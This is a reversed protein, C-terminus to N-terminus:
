GSAPNRSRLWTLKPVSILGRFILLKQIGFTLGMRIAHFVGISSLPYSLRGPARRDSAPFEFSRSAEKRFRVVLESGLDLLRTAFEFVELADDRWARALKAPGRISISRDVPGVVGLTAL